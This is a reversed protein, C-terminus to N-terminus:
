EAIGREAEARLRARERDRRRIRITNVVIFRIMWTIVLAGAAIAAFPTYDFRYREAAPDYITCFLRIKKVVDEMSNFTKTGWLLEKLPEILKPLEFQEGYIQRYVEGNKDIVTVQSIHDFGKPTPFFTFGLEEVFGLVHPAEGSLFRWNDAEIAHANAFRGMRDPSDNRVDFGVTLVNFKEAGIADRAEEMWDALTEVIVPCATNCSSYTFSVILPKGAFDSVRVPGGESDTFEWNSVRTGIAAQSVKLAEGVPDDENALDARPQGAPMMLAAALLLPAFRM